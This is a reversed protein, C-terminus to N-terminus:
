KKGKILHPTIILHDVEIPAVIQGSSTAQLGAKSQPATDQAFGSVSFALQLILSTLVAHSILVRQRLIISM